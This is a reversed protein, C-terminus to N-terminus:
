RQQCICYLTEDDDEQPAHEQCFVFREVDLAVVKDEKGKGGKRDRKRGRKGDAGSGSAASAADQCEKEKQRSDAMFLYWGNEFACIAHAALRCGKEQCKVLVGGGKTHPCFCCGSGSSGSSSRGKKKGDKTSKKIVSDVLKLGAKPDVVSRLPSPTRSYELFWPPPVVTAALEADSCEVGARRTGCKFRIDM